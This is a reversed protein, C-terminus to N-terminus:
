SNKNLWLFIFNYQGKPVTTKSSCSTPYLLCILVRTRVAAAKYNYLANRFDGKIHMIHPFIFVAQHDMHLGGDSFITLSEILM